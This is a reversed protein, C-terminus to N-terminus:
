QGLIGMLPGKKVPGREEEKPSLPRAKKPASTSNHLDETAGKVGTAGKGVQYIPLCFTSAMDRMTRQLAVQELFETVGLNQSGTLQTSQCIPVHWGGVPFFYAVLSFSTELIISQESLQHYIQIYM